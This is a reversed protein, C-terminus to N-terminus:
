VDTAIHLLVIKHELCVNDTEDTKKQSHLNGTRIVKSPKHCFKRCIDNIISDDGMFQLEPVEKLYLAWIIKGTTAHTCIPFVHAFLLHYWFTSKKSTMQVLKKKEEPSSM